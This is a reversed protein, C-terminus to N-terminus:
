RFGGGRVIEGAVQPASSTLGADFRVVVRKEGTRVDVSYVNEAGGSLVGVLVRGDDAWGVVHADMAQGLEVDTEPATAESSTLSVARLLYPRPKGDLVNLPRDPLAKAEAIALQQEDPSWLQGAAGFVNGYRGADPMSRLRVSGVTKGALDTIDVEPTQVSLLRQGDASWGDVDPGTFQVKAGRTLAGSSDIDVLFCEVSGYGGNQQAGETVVGQVLLRASDTSWAISEVPEGLGIGPLALSATEGTALTVVRLQTKPQAGGVPSTKQWGYAVKMGDPSLAYAAGRYGGSSSVRLARVAEDDASVLIPTGGRDQYMLAARAIPASFESRVDSVAGVSSPVAGPGSVPGAPVVARRGVSFVSTVLLVLLAVVVMALVPVTVHARRRRRGALRLAADTLDDPMAVDRSVADLTSRLSESM